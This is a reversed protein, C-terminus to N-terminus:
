SLAPCKQAGSKAVFGYDRTTFSGVELVSRLQGATLGTALVTGLEGYKFWLSRISTARLYGSHLPM